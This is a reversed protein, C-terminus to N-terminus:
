VASVINLETNKKSHRRTHRKLQEVKIYRGKLIHPFTYTVNYGKDTQPCRGHGLLRTHLPPQAPERHGPALSALLVHGQMSQGVSSAVVM